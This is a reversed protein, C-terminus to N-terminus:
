VIRLAEKAFQVAIKSVPLGHKEKHMIRRAWDKQDGTFAPQPEYHPASKCYNDYCKWCRSGYRMLDEHEAGMLCVSCTYTVVGDAQKQEEYSKKATYYSM